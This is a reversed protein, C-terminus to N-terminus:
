KKYITLNKRNMLDDQYITVAKNFNVNGDRNQNRKQNQSSIVSSLGRMFIDKQKKGLGSIGIYLNFEGERGLGSQILIEFAKSQNKKEFQKLYNLVPETSPTGCCISSYGIEIYAPSKQASFFTFCFLGTIILLNKM